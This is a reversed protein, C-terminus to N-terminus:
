KDALWILLCNLKQLPVCRPVLFQMPQCNLSKCKETDYQYTGDFMVRPLWLDLAIPGKDRELAHPTLSEYRDGICSTWRCNTNQGPGLHEYASLLSM